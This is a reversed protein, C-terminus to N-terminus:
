STFKAFVFSLIFIVVVTGMMIYPYYPNTGKEINPVRPQGWIIEKKGPKEEGSNEETTEKTEKDEM